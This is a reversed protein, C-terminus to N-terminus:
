RRCRRATPSGGAPQPQLHIRPLLLQLRRHCRRRTRTPTLPRLCLCAAAPPSPRASLWEGVHEAAVATFHGDTWEELNDKDLSIAVALPILYVVSVLMITAVMARPFDRGPHRVEAALAGVSDYGSTNWLLVSLFTGWRVAAGEPQPGMTWSSPDIRDMGLLSLAAFPTIVLFAFIGSAHAVVDVGRLNLGTVAALMSVSALWRQWGTLRLAPFYSLYDVFMVPYLANDFANSVLNWLANQHAWFPGFARYVWVVYGGAEPIMSSLEATMLAIPLSWLWPLLLLGLLTLAPGAAGVSDELGYDGGCVAFFTVGILHYWKLKPRLRGEAGGGSTSTGPAHRKGDDAATM